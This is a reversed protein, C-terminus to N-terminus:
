SNKEEAKEATGEIETLQDLWKGIRNVFDVSTNMLRVKNEKTCELDIGDVEVGQWDVICFDWILEDARKEDVVKYEHRNGGKYERKTTSTLRNIKDIDAKACVRLCVGGAEHDDEDFWFWTGENKTDFKM